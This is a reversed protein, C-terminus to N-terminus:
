FDIDQDGRDEDETDRLDALEDEREQQQAEEDGASNNGTENIPRESKDESRGGRETEVQKGKGSKEGRLNAIENKRETTKTPQPKETSVERPQRKAEIRRQHAAELLQERNNIYEKKVNWLRDSKSFINGAHDFAVYEYKKTEDNFSKHVRGIVNHYSDTITMFHGEGTAREYEIFRFQNDKQKKTQPTQTKM